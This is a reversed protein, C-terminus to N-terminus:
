IITYEKHKICRWAGVILVLACGAAVIYIWDNMMKSGVFETETGILDGNIVNAAFVKKKTQYYRAKTLDMPKMLLEKLKNAKKHKNYTCKKSEESSDSPKGIGSLTHEGCKIEWCGDLDDFKEYTYTEMACDCDNCGTYYEFYLGEADCSLMASFQTGEVESPICEDVVFSFSAYDSPDDCTTATDDTFGVVKIDVTHCNTGSGICQSEGGEFNVPSSAELYIDTCETDDVFYNL